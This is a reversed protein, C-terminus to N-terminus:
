YGIAIWHCKREAISSNVEINGIFGSSTIEKITNGENIANPYLTTLQVVPINIFKKPFPM